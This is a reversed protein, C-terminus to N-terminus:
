EAMPTEVAAAVLAQASRKVRESTEELFLDAGGTARLQDDLVVLTDVRRAKFFTVLSGYARDVELGHAALKATAIGLVPRDVWADPAVLDVIAKMAGSYVAKYVPTALVIAAARRSAELFRVVSPSETRGFLLDAPDFERVSWTVPKLGAGHLEAAVANAVLTSKSSASPSGLIFLVDRSM